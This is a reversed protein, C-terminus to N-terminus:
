KNIGVWYFLFGDEACLVEAQLTEAMARAGPPWGVHRWATSAMQTNGLNKWCGFGWMGGGRHIGVERLGTWTCDCRSWIKIISIKIGIDLEGCNMEFLLGLYCV